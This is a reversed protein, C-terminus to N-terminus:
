YRQNYQLHIQHWLYRLFRISGEKFSTSKIKNKSLLFPKRDFDKLGEIVKTAINQVQNIEMNSHSSFSVAWNWYLLQTGLFQYFTFLEIVLRNDANINIYRLRADFLLVIFHWVVLNYCLSHLPNILAPDALHSRLLNQKKKLDKRGRELTKEMGETVPLHTHVNTEQHGYFHATM